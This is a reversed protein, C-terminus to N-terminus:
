EINQVQERIQEIAVKLDVARQAARALTSKAALTNAERNLEQALFDLRRGHPGVAALTNRAEKVHLELRSLEEAVDARQVLLAVEQALREAPVETVLERVRALLRKHLEETLTATLARSDAVIGEIEDLRATIVAALEAGERGRHAILADLAKEFAKHAANEFAEGEEKAEGLVGPWRLLDLPDPHSADPADRRLQEITSLLQLLLPRNIDLHNALRAGTVKLTCDVKGRKLRARVVDRLPLELSRLNEPVRFSVELYRHNVSRIEWQLAGWESMTTTRAFGTMSFIM